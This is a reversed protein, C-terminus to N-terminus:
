EPRREKSARVRLYLINVNPVVFEALARVEKNPTGVFLCAADMLFCCFPKPTMNWYNLPPPPVNVVDVNGPLLGRVNRTLARTRSGSKRNKLWSRLAAILQSKNLGLKTYILASSCITSSCSAPKSRSLIFHYFSFDESFINCFTFERGNFRVAPWFQMLYLQHLAITTGNQKTEKKTQLLSLRSSLLTQELYYEVVLAIDGFETKYRINDLWRDEDLKIGVKLLKKHTMKHSFELWLNYHVGNVQFGNLGIIPAKNWENVIASVIHPEKRQYNARIANEIDKIKRWLKNSLLIRNRFIQLFMLEDVKHRLIM